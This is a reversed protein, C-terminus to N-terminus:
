VERKFALADAKCGLGHVLLHEVELSIEVSGIGALLEVQESGLVRELIHEGLLASQGFVDLIAAHKDVPHKLHALADLQPGPGAVGCSHHKVLAEESAVRFLLGPLRHTECAQSKCCFVDLLIFALVLEREQSLLRLTHRVQVKLLGLNRLFFEFYEIREAVGDRIKGYAVKQLHQETDPDRCDFVIHLCELRVLFLIFRVLVQTTNRLIDLQSLRVESVHAAQVLLKGVAVLDVRLSDPLEALLGAEERVQAHLVHM